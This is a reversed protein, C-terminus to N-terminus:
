RAELTLVDRDYMGPMDMITVIRQGDPCWVGNNRLSDGPSMTACGCFLTVSLLMLLLLSLRIIM